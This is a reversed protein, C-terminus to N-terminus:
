FTCFTAVRVSAAIGFLRSATVTAGHQGAKDRDPEIIVKCGAFMKAFQIAMECTPLGIVAFGLSHLTAANKSGGTILVTDGPEPWTAVFLGPSKGKANLGKELRKNGFGLDFESCQQRDSNFMPLRAVTARGRTAPKAGFAIFSALPMRKARAVDAVINGAPREGGERGLHGAVAKLTEGATAPASDAPQGNSPATWAALEAAREVKREDTTM